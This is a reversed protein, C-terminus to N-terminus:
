LDAGGTRRDNVATDSAKLAELLKRSKHFGAIFVLAVIVCVATSVIALVSLIEFEMSGSLLACVLAVVAAITLIKWRKELVVSDLQANHREELEKVALVVMKTGWIQLVLSVCSLLTFLLNIVLIDTEIEVPLWGIFDLGAALLLVWGTKLTKTVNLDRMGSFLLLYGVFGPLVNIPGSFIGSVNFNIYLFILGWFIKKM